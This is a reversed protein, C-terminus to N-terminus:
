TSVISRSSAYYSHQLANTDEKVITCGRVDYYNKYFIAIRLVLRMAHRVRFNGRCTHVGVTLDKPRGRLMANYLEIYSKLLAEHDIGAEEMGSIMSEACFFCFTPDDIQINRCGLEYLEEFEERYAKLM